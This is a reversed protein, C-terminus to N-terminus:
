SQSLKKIFESKNAPTNIYQFCFYEIIKGINLEKEIEYM